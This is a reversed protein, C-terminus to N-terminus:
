KTCCVILVSTLWLQVEAKITAM